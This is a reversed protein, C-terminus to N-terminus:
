FNEEAGKGEGVKKKKGWMNKGHRLIEERVSGEVEGEIHCPRKLKLISNPTVGETDREQSGVM